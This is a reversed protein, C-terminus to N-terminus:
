CIMSIYDNVHLQEDESTSCWSIAYGLNAVKFYAASGFLTHQDIHCIWVGPNAIDMEIPVNRPNTSLGTGIAKLVAEKASWLVIFAEKESRQNTSVQGHIWKLEESTCLSKYEFLPREPVQEIDIGVPVSGITLAILDGSHSWNFYGPFHEISPKGYTNYRFTIPLPIDSKFESSQSSELWFLVRAAIFRNRDEEFHFRRSKQIDNESLIRTVTGSDVKQLINQYSDVRIRIM